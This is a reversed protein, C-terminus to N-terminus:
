VDLTTLDGNFWRLIYHFYLFLDADRGLPCRHLTRHHMLSGRQLTVSDQPNSLTTRPGFSDM